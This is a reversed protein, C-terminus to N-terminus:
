GARRRALKELPRVLKHRLWGLAYGGRGLRHMMDATAEAARSGYKKRLYYIQTFWMCRTAVANLWPKSLCDTLLRLHDDAGNGTRRLTATMQRPHVRYAILPEALYAFRGQELLRFWFELDDITQYRGDIGGGAQSKRFLTRTPEGIINGNQELCRVITAKGDWDGTQRFNNERRRVQSQSDIIFAGTAVLSVASNTALVEAMQTVVSPRLLKDDAHVFKIFEGQAERLCLNHNAALGLNKPNQWWRIRADRAAFKKITAVSDDTSGDDAILIEMDRFDQALVSDLCETLYPEGNRVPILVSVKM